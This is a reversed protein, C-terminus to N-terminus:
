SKALVTGGCARPYVASPSPGPPTGPPEGCARPYVPMGCSAATSVRPEGARAPISGYEETVEKNFQQNGRVRPSLGINPSRSVAACATGGCARPYVTITCEAGSVLAPNGRM